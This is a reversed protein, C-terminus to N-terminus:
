DMLGLKKVFSIHDDSLQITGSSNIGVCKDKLRNIARENKLIVVHIDELAEETLGGSYTIDGTRYDSHSTIRGLKNQTKAVEGLCKLKAMEACYENIKSTENFKAIKDRIDFKVDILKQIKVSLTNISEVTISQADDKSKFRESNLSYLNIELRSIENDISTELQRANKINIM